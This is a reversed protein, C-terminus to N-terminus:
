GSLHILAGALAGSFLGLTLVPLRSWGAFVAWGACGTATGIMLGEFRGTVQRLTLGSLLGVGERGLLNGLAGVLAALILVQEGDERHQPRGAAPQEVARHLGPM